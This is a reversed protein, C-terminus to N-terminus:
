ENAEPINVEIYCDEKRFDYKSLNDPLIIKVSAKRKGPTLGSLDVAALISSYEVKDLDSKLGWLRVNVSDPFVTGAPINTKVIKATPIDIDLPVEKELNVTVTVERQAGDPISLDTGELYTRLDFIQVMTENVGEIQIPLLEISKFPLVGSQSIVDLQQPSLNVNVVRYGAAAKGEVRPTIPLMSKMYVPITLNVEEVDTKILASIDKGEKDLVAFKLKESLNASIDSIKAKVQIDQISNILSKAGSVLITSPEIIPTMATYGEKVEGETELSISISREVHNDLVVNVQNPYISIIEFGTLSPLDVTVPAAMPEELTPTILDIPKLDIRAIIRRSRSLAQIDSRSARVRVDITATSLEKENVLVYGNASVREKNYLTLNVKFTQILPPNVINLGVYWLIVAFLLSILKFGINKFILQNIKKM